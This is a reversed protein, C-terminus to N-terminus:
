WDGGCGGGGDGGDYGSSGGSYDGSSGGHSGGGHDSLLWMTFWFSSNDSGGGSGCAPRSDGKARRRFLRVLIWALAAFGLVCGVVTLIVM